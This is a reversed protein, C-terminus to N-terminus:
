HSFKDIRVELGPTRSDSDDGVSLQGNKGAGREWGTKMQNDDGDEHLRYLKEADSEIFTNGRCVLKCIQFGESPYGGEKWRDNHGEEGM